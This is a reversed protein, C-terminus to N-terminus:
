GMNFEQRLKNHRIRLQQIVEEVTIGDDDDIMKLRQHKFCESTVYLNDTLNDRVIKEIVAFDTKAIKKLMAKKEQQYWSMNVFEPGFEEIFRQEPVWPDDDEVDFQFGDELDYDIFRVEKDIEQAGYNYYASDINAFFHSLIVISGLGSLHKLSNGKILTGDDQLMYDKYYYASNVKKIEGGKTWQTFHKFERRALFYDGKEFVYDLDTSYGLFYKYLKSLTVDVQALFVTRRMILKWQNKKYVPDEPRDIIKEKAHYHIRCIKPDSKKTPVIDTYDHFNKFTINTAANCTLNILIIIAFFLVRLIKM